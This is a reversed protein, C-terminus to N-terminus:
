RTEMLTSIPNEILQRLEGLFLAAPYGDVLRHDFTLSLWCTPAAVVAGNKVLPRQKITGVGLIAAEPLNIIPTFTDVGSQGLSTLTISIGTTDDLGLRGGRAKDAVERAKRAIDPLGLRDAHPIKGVILGGQLAVALGIHVGDHRVLKDDDLYINLLPNKKMALALM